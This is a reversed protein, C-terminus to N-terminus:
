IKSSHGCAFSTGIMENIVSDTFFTRPTNRYCKGMCPMRSARALVAVNYFGDPNYYTDYSQAWGPTLTDISLRRSYTNDMCSHAISYAILVCTRDSGLM